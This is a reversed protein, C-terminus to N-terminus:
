QSAVLERRSTSRRMAISAYTADAGGAFRSAARLTKVSYSRVRGAFSRRERRRLRGGRRPSRATRARSATPRRLGCAVPYRPARSLTAVDTAAESVAQAYRHGRVCQAGHAPSGRSVRLGRQFREAVRRIGPQARGEFPSTLVVIRQGLERRGLPADQRLQALPLFARSIASVNSRLKLVILLWVRAIKVANPTRLRAASTASHARRPIRSSMFEAPQVVGRPPACRAGTGRVSTGATWRRQRRLALRPRRRCPRCQRRARPAGRNRDRDRDRRHPIRAHSEGKNRM